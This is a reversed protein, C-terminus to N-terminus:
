LWARTFTNVHMALSRCQSSHLSRTLHLSVLEPCQLQSLTEDDLHDWAIFDEPGPLTNLWPRYHQQKQQDHKIHLLLICAEEPTGEFPIALQKPLSIIVEDPAFSREALVGRPAGESAYGVSVDAQM